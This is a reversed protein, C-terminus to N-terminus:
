KRAEARLHKSLESEARPPSSDQVPLRTRQRDAREQLIQRVMTYPTHLTIDPDSARHLINIAAAHDAQMVVGGPLYLRDGRRAGLTCHDRPDAQSTYAANVLVLASSRRESVDHLAQATLGKTWAALRRNTNRGPKRRGTFSKTLDEAAVLCAKDAVQNVAQYTITRVRGHWRRTQRERKLTGLNHQEIRDAKARDGAQIARDRVARLKSPLATVSAM